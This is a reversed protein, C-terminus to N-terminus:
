LKEKEGSPSFSFNISPTLPSAWQPNQPLAWLDQRKEKYKEM